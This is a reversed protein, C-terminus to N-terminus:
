PIGHARIDELRNLLNDLSEEFESATENAALKTRLQQLTPYDDLPPSAPETGAAEPVPGVDAGLAAV